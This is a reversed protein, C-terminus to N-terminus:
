KYLVLLRITDTYTPSTGDYKRSQLNVIGNNIAAIVVHTTLGVNDVFATIDEYESIGCDFIASGNNFNIDTKFSKIKYGGTTMAINSTIKYWLCCM